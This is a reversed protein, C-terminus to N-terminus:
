GGRPTAPDRLRAARMPPAGRAVGRLQAEIGTGISLRPAGAEGADRAAQELAAGISEAHRLSADALSHAFASPGGDGACGAAREEGPSSVLVASDEGSLTDLWAGAACTAVVIVRYRIGAGDLLQKLAAPTVPVLDLPPHHAVLGNEAAADAALYLMVIDDDAEISDGLEQLVRRLNTLTAFPLETLTAAHNVLAISRGQTGFREDMVTRMADVEARFGDKRGDPAFGVFYLDTVGPREDELGDIANDLLLAQVAMVPESAPSLAAENGADDGGPTWWGTLPGAFPAAWLPLSLLLGGAVARATRRLAPAESVVYVVRMCLGVMWALMALEFVVSATGELGMGAVAPVAHLVQLLPFAALVVVPVAVFIGDDRCWAAILASSVMLLGVSYLEGGLGAFTFSGGPTARLGDLAIDILASVVIVLLWAVLDVRFARRDVPQFLALRAGAALNAALDALPARIPAPADAM